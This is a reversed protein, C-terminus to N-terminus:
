ILSNQKKWIIKESDHVVQWHLSWFYMVTAIISFLKGKRFTPIKWVEVEITHKKNIQKAIKYFSLQESKERFTVFDPDFLTLDIKKLYEEYLLRPHKQCHKDYNKKNFIFRHIKTNRFVRKHAKNELKGEFILNDNKDKKM